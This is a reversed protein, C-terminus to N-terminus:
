HKYGQNHLCNYAKWCDSMITTGPHIWKKIVDLLTEAKRDEVAVIFIKKSDREYGGFVWKGQILRGRHYKRTGFKAEDIEVIKNPGGVQTSNKECWKVCM